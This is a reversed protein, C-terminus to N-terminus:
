GWLANIYLISEAPTMKKADLADLEELSRTQMAPINKSPTITPTEPATQIARRRAVSRSETVPEANTPIIEQTVEITQTEM